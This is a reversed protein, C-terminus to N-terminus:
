SPGVAFCRNITRHWPTAPLEPHLAALATAYKSIRTPRHGQSWLLRDVSSPTSGTKTEVIALGPMLLRRGAGDVWQLETDLTVRSASAPLLFTTRRYQSVLAVEFVMQAARSIGAGDLVEDVFWRAPLVSGEYAADYPM